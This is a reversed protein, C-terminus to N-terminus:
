PALLRAFVVCWFVCVVDHQTTGIMWGGAAMIRAGVTMGGDPKMMGKGDTRGKTGATLNGTERDNVVVGSRREPDGGAAV